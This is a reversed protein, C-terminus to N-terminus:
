SSLCLSQRDGPERSWTDEKEPFILWSYLENLEKKKFFFNNEHSRHGPRSHENSERSLLGVGDPICGIENLM